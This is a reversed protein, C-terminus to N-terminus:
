HLPSTTVAFPSETEQLVFVIESPITIIVACTWGSTLIV